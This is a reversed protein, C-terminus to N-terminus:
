SGGNKNAIAAEIKEIAKNIAIRTDEVPHDKFEILDDLAPEAQIGMNGLTTASRRAKRPDPGKVLGILHAMKHEFMEPQNWDRNDPDKPADVGYHNGPRGGGWGSLMFVLFLISLIGAGLIGFQITKKSM